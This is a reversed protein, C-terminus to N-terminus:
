SASLRGARLDEEKTYYSEFLQWFTEWLPDPDDDFFADHCMSRADDWDGVIISEITSEGLGTKYLDIQRIKALEVSLDQVAELRLKREARTQLFWSQSRKRQQAEQFMEKAGEFLREFPNTM